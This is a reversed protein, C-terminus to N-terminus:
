GQLRQYNNISIVEGPMLPEIYETAAHLAEETMGLETGSLTVTVWAHGMGGGKKAHFFSIFWRNRMTFEGWYM